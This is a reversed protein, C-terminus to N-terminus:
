WIRGLAGECDPKKKGSGQTETPKNNTLDLISGAEDQQCWFTRSQLKSTEQKLAKIQVHSNFTLSLM